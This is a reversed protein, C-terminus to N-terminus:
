GLNYQFNYTEFIERIQKDTIGPNNKKLYRVLSVREQNAAKTIPIISEQYTNLQTQLTEGNQLATSTNSNVLKGTALYTNLDFAKYNQTISYTKYEKSLKFEMGYGPEM